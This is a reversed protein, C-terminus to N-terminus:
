SNGLTRSLASVGLFTRGQDLPIVRSPPDLPRPQRLCFSRDPFVSVEDSSHFENEPVDSRFKESWSVPNNRPLVQRNIVFQRNQIETWLFNEKSLRDVNTAKTDDDDDGDDSFWFQANTAKSPSLKVMFWQNTLFNLSTGNALSRRHWDLLKKLKTSIM